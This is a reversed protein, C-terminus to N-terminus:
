PTAGQAAGGAPTSGPNQGIGGGPGGQGSPVTGAGMTGPMSASGDVIKDLPAFNMAGWYADGGTGAIDPLNEKARIDNSSLWGGNRGLTWAQYRTITNGRMRADLNFACTINSPTVTPQSFYSEIRTLWAVLTNTVYFMEASEADVGANSTRDQLGLRHLPMGFFAAIEVRQFDRTQLFQANDPSISMAKWSAGGTLVAPLSSAGIGQHSQKWSRALELAELEDLDEPVEIVGSPMASNAFFRGGYQEASSALGWSNRMYSVPDMGVFTGPMLIAPIHFVDDNNLLRGKYRYERAQTQPNRKCMVDDPHLPKITLPYGNGDRTTTLGFFNGRLTLSVMVQVMWDLRTGEPWPNTVVPPSPVLVKSRDSATRYTEFPLTAVDDALNRVCANVVSIAMAVDDNITIGGGAFGLQGNTPIYSSGWNLTPDAGRHEGGPNGGLRRIISM